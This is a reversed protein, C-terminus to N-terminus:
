WPLTPTGGASRSGTLGPAIPSDRRLVEDIPLPHRDVRQTDKGILGAAAGHDIPVVEGARHSLDNGVRARMMQESVIRRLRRLIAPEVFDLNAKPSTSALTRDRLPYRVGVAASVDSYLPTTAHPEAARLSCRVIELAVGIIFVVGGVMLGFSFLDTALIAIWRV